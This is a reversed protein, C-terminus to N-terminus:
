KCSTERSNRFDTKKFKNESRVPMWTGSIEANKGHDQSSAEAEQIQREHDSKEQQVGDITCHHRHRREELPDIRLVQLDAQPINEPCDQHAQQFANKEAIHKGKHSHREENPILSLLMLPARDCPDLM